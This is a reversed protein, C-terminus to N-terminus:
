VEDAPAPRRAAPASGTGAALTEAFPKVFPRELAVRRCADASPPPFGTAGPPAGRAEEPAPRRMPGAALTRHSAGGPVGIHNGVAFAPAPSAPEAGPPPMVAYGGKVTGTGVARRPAMAPRWTRRGRLSRPPPTTAGTGACEAAPRDGDGFLPTCAEIGERAVPGGPASAYSGAGGTGLGGGPARLFPLARKM